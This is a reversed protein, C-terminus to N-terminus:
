GNARSGGRLIRLTREAGGLRHGVPIFFYEERRGNMGDISQSVGLRVFCLAHSKKGQLCVQNGTSNAVFFYSFNLPATLIVHSDIKSAGM